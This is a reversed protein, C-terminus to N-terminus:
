GSRGLPGRDATAVPETFKNYDLVSGFPQSCIISLAKALEPLIFSYSCRNPGGLMGFCGKGNVRMIKVSGNFAEKINSILEPPCTKNLGGFLDTGYWIVVIASLMDVIGNHNSGIDAIQGMRRSILHHSDGNVMVIIVELESEKLEGREHNGDLTERIFKPSFYKLFAKKIKRRELYEKIMDDCLVFLEGPAAGCASRDPTAVQYYNHGQLWNLNKTSTAEQLRLPYLSNDWSL